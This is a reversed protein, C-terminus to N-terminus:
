QFIADKTFQINYGASKLISISEDLTMQAKLIDADTLSSLMHPFKNYTLIISYTIDGLEKLEPLKYKYLTELQIKQELSNHQESKVISLRENVDKSIVILYELLVGLKTSTNNKLGNM